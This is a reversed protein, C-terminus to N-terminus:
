KTAEGSIGVARNTILSRNANKLDTRGFHVKFDTDRLSVETEPRSLEPIHQVKSNSCKCELSALKCLQNAYPMYIKSLQQM